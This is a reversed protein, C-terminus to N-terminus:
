PQETPVLRYLRLRHRVRGAELGAAEGRGIYLDARVQGQIASGRDLAIALRRYTPFAGSLTPASADIWFVEGLAHAFTDVALARGPVLRVGAAGTPQGGDDAILRFFVYRRNLQMISDAEVGRHAALWAHVAEASANSASLLGRQRMPRSIALYPAGNSADFVARVPPGRDLKLVGSGQTQLSFLDEPRMWALADPANRAEIAARDEYPTVSKLNAPRPRVPATFEGGPSTRAEYIPMYYATLLGEAGFAQPQFHAEFFTRADAASSGTSAKAVHCVRRAVPPGAVDCGARYANFAALHDDEDWGPLDRIGLARAPSPQPTPPPLPATEIRRPALPKPPVPKQTACGALWLPALCLPALLAGGRWHRM